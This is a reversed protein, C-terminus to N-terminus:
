LGLGFLDKLLQFHSLICWLNINQKYLLKDVQKIMIERMDGELFQEKFHWLSYPAMTECIMTVEFFGEVTYREHGKVFKM